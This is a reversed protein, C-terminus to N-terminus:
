GHPQDAGEQHYKQGSFRPSLFHWTCHKQAYTPPLPTGLILRLLPPQTIKTSYIPGLHLCPPLFPLIGLFIASTMHVRGWVSVATM